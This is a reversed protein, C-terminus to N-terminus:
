IHANDWIFIINHDIAYLLPDHRGKRILQWWNYLETVVLVEQGFYKATMRFRNELFRAQQKPDTRCPPLQKSLPMAVGRTYM